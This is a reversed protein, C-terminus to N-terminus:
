PKKLYFPLTIQEHKPCRTKPCTLCDGLIRCYVVTDLAECFNM